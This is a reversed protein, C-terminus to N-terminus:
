IFKNLSIQKQHNKIDYKRTASRGKSYFKQFPADTEAKKTRSDRYAEYEEKFDKDDNISEYRTEFQEIYTREIPFFTFLPDGKRFVVEGPSMFKMNYTFTFPLWDTEVAGELPLVHDIPHNPAGRTIVSVNESTRILFDPAITLIGNSLHSQAYNIKPDEHYHIFLDEKNPGGNWTVCFEAPNLVAWGYQSAINLPICQYANTDIVNDMWARKIPLPIIDFVTEDYLKVISISKNM